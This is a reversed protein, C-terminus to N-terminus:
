LRLLMVLCCFILMFYCKVFYRFADCFSDDASIQFQFLHLGEMISCDPAMTKSPYGGLLSQCGTCHIPTWMSLKSHESESVMFGNGLDLFRLTSQQYINDKTSAIVTDSETVTDSLLVYCTSLGLLCRGPRM